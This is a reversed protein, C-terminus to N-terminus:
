LPLHDKVNALRSTSGVLAFSGGGSRTPRPQRSTTRKRNSATLVPRQEGQPPDFAPPSLWREEPPAYYGAGGNNLPTTGGTVYLTSNSHGGSRAPARLEHAIAM